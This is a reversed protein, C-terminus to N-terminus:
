GTPSVKQPEGPDGTIVTIKGGGSKLVESVTGVSKVTPERWTRRPGENPKPSTRSM